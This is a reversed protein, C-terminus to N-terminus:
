RIVQVKQKTVKIDTNVKRGLLKGDLFNVIEDLPIMYGQTPVQTGLTNVGVVEGDENVTASGSSGAYFEATIHTYVRDQYVVDDGVYGDTQHNEMDLPNSVETVRDGAKARVSAIRIVPLKWKPIEVLCM